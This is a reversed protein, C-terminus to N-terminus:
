KAPVLSYPLVVWRGKYKFSNAMWSIRHLCHMQLKGCNEKWINYLLFEDLQRLFGQPRRRGQTSWARQYDLKKPASNNCSNL